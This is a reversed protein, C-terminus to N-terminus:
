FEETIHTYGEALDYEIDRKSPKKYRRKKKIDPVVNSRYRDDELMEKHQRIAPRKFTKSMSANYYSPIPHSISGERM